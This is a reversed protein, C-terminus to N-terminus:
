WTTCFKPAGVAEPPAACPENRDISGLPAFVNFTCDLKAALPVWAEAKTPAHLHEARVVLVPEVGDVVGAGNRFCYAPTLLGRPKDL